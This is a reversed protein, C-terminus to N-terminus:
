HRANFELPGANSSAQKSEEEAAARGPPSGRRTGHLPPLQLLPLM